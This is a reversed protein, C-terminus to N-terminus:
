KMAELILLAGAWCWVQIMILVWVPWGKINNWIRVLGGDLKQLLSVVGLFCLNPLLTAGWPM